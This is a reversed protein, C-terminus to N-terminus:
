ERPESGMGSALLPQARLAGAPLRPVTTPLLPSRPTPSSASLYSWLAGRTQMEMEKSDQLQKEPQGVDCCDGAHTHGSVNEIKVHCM